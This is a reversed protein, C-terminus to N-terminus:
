LRVKVMHYSHEPHFANANQNGYAKVMFAWVNWFHVSQTKMLMWRHSWELYRSDSSMGKTDMFEHKDYSAM